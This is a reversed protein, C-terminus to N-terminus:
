VNSHISSAVDIHLLSNMTLLVVAQLRWSQLGTEGEKVKAQLLCGPDGWLVNM